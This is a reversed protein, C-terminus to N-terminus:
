IIKDKKLDIVLRKTVNIVMKETAADNQYFLALPLLLLHKVDTAEEVYSYKKNVVGMSDFLEAVLTVNRQQWFPVLGVTIATLWQWSYHADDYEGDYIYHLRLNVSAKKEKGILVSNCDGDHEFINIIQKIGDDLKKYDFAEDKRSQYAESINATSTKQQYGRITLLIDLAVNSNGHAAESQENKSKSAYFTACGGLFTSIMFLFLIDQITRRKM